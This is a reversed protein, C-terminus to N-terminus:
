ISDCGRWSYLGNGYRKQCPKNWLKWLASFTIVLQSLLFIESSESSIGLIHDSIFFLVQCKKTAFLRESSNLHARVVIPWVLTKTPSHARM